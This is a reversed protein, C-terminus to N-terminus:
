TQACSQSKRKSSRLANAFDSKEQTSVGKKEPPRWQAATRWVCTGFNHVSRSRLRRYMNINPVHPLNARFFLKRASPTQKRCVQELAPRLNATDLDRKCFWRRITENGCCFFRHFANYVSGPNWHSDVKTRSIGLGVKFKIEKKKGRKRERKRKKGSLDEPARCAGSGCRAM